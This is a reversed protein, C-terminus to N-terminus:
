KGLSNVWDSFWKNAKEHELDVCEYFDPTYTGDEKDQREFEEILAIGDAYTKVYEIINGAERDRVVYEYLYGILMPDEGEVDIVYVKIAEEDDYNLGFRNRQRESFSCPFTFKFESWKYGNRKIEDRAEGFTKFLQNDQNHSIITRFSPITMDLHASNISNGGTRNHNVSAFNIRVKSHVM